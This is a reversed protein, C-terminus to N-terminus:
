LVLKKSPTKLVSFMEKYQDEIEEQTEAMYVIYKKTVELEENKGKLLPSWPAFGMQGNGTPVAVIPNCIVVSDEKEELLDAVVDEGSWMRMLKVNM